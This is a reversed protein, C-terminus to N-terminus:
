PSKATSRSVQLRHVITAGFLLLAASYYVWSLFLVMALFSGYMPSYASLKQLYLSFIHNALEWLLTLTIGGIAVERWAPRSRPLYRYLGTAVSLKAPGNEHGTM